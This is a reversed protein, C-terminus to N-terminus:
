SGDPTQTYKLLKRCMSSKRWDGVPEEIAACMRTLETLVACHCDSNVTANCRCAADICIKEYWNLSMKQACERFHVSRIIDCVTRGIQWNFMCCIRLMGSHLNM